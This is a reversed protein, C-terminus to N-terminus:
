PANNINIIINNYFYQTIVRSEKTHPNISASPTSKRKLCPSYLVIMAIRLRSFPVFADHKASHKAIGISPTQAAPISTIATYKCYRDPM